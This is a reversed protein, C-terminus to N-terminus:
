EVNYTGNFIDELINHNDNNVKLVKGNNVTEVAEKFLNKIENEKSTIENIEGYVQFFNKEGLYYIHNYIQIMGEFTKLDLGM